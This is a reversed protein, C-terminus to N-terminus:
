GTNRKGSQHLNNDQKYKRYGYVFVGLGAFLIPLVVFDIYSIYAAFGAFALGWMLLPTFCCLAAVISTWFGAKTYKNLNIFNMKKMIDAAVIVGPRSQRVTQMGMLVFYVATARNPNQLIAAPRVSGFFSAPIRLCKKKQSTDVLRVLLQPNM